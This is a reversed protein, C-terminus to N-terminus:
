ARKIRRDRRIRAGIRFPLCREVQRGLSGALEANVSAKDSSVSGVGVSGFGQDSLEADQYHAAIEKELTEFSKSLLPEYALLDQYKDWVQWSLKDHEIKLMRGQLDAQDLPLGILKDKVIMLNGDINTLRSDLLSQDQNSDPLLVAEISSLLDKAHEDLAEKVVFSALVTLASLITVAPKHKALFQYCWKWWRSEVISPLRKDPSQAM